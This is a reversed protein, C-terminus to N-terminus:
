LARKSVRLPQSVCASSSTAFTSCRWLWRPRRTTSRKPRRYRQPKGCSRAGYSRLDTTVVCIAPRPDAPLAIVGIPIPSALYDMTWGPVTLTFSPFGQPVGDHSATGGLAISRRIHLLSGAIIYLICYRISDMIGRFSAQSRIFLLAETQGGGQGLQCPSPPTWDESKSLTPEIGAMGQRLNGATNIM